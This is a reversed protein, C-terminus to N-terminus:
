ERRASARRPHVAHALAERLSARLYRSWGAAHAVALVTAPLVLHALRDAIGGDGFSFRGSSPLWGLANAFVLQLVLGLWFVPLSIGAVALPSAVRDVGRRAAAAIGVAFAILVAGITSTAILQLTAPVREFLREMVPRGDAYSYGWDGRVFAALWALYQAALPRDLGDRAPTARHGAPRVNPNDLYM